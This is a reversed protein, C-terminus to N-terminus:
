RALDVGTMDALHMASLIVQAKERGALALAQQGSGTVHVSAIGLELLYKRVIAAQSRSPEVLVVTLHRVRDADSPSPGAALRIEQSTLRQPSDAAVTMEALAAKGPAPKQASPRVDLGPATLPVAELAAAAETMTPYRDEPKKAVMRRFVADLEAPADPRAEALAPIPAERHKLLLAM